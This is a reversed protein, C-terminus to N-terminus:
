INSILLCTAYCPSLTGTWAAAVAEITPFPVATMPRTRLSMSLLIAATPASSKKRQVLLHSECRDRFVIPLSHAADRICLPM